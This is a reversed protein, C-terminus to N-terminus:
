GSSSSAPGVIEFRTNSYHNTKLWHEAAAQDPAIHMLESTGPWQQLILIQGPEPVSIIEYSLPSTTSVIRNIIVVILGGEPHFPNARLCFRDHTEYCTGTVAPEKRTLYGQGNRREWDALKRRFRSPPKPMRDSYRIVAGLPATDYIEQANMATEM